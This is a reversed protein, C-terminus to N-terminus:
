DNLLKITDFLGPTLDRAKKYRFILSKGERTEETQNM